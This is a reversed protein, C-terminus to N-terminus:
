VVFSPFLWHWPWDSKMQFQVTYFYLKILPDLLEADGVFILEM